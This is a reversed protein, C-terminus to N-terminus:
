GLLWTKKSIADRCIKPLILVQIWRDIATNSLANAVYGSCIEERALFCPPIEFVVAPSSALTRQKVLNERRDISSRVITREVERIRISFYGSIKSDVAHTKSDYNLIRTISYSGAM